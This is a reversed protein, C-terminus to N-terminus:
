PYRLREVVLCGDCQNRDAIRQHPQGTTCMAQTTCKRPQHSAASWSTLLIFQRGHIILTHEQLPTSTSLYSGRLDPRSSLHAELKAGIPCPSGKDSVGSAVKSLVM